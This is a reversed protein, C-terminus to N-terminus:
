EKACAAVDYRIANDDVELGQGAREFFEKLVDEFGNQTAGKILGEFNRNVSDPFEALYRDVRERISQAVM